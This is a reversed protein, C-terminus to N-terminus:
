IRKRELQKAASSGCADLTLWTTENDLDPGDFTMTLHFKAANEIIDTGQERHSTERIEAPAVDNDDGELSIYVSDEGELEYIDFGEEPLLDDIQASLAIFIDSYLPATYEGLDVPELM